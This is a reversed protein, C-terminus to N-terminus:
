KTSGHEKRTIQSVELQKKDKGLRKGNMWGLQRANAAFGRLAVYYGRTKRRGVPGNNSSSKGIGGRSIRFCNGWVSTHGKPVNTSYAGSRRGWFENHRLSIPGGFSEM